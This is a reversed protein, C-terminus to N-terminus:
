LPEDDPRHRADEPKPEQEVAGAVAVDLAVGLIKQQERLTLVAATLLDWLFEIDVRGEDDTPVWESYAALVPSHSLVLGQLCDM